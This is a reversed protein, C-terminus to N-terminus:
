HPIAAAILGMIKVVGAGVAGSGGMLLGLKFGKVGGAVQNQTTSVVTALETIKKEAPKGHDEIWTEHREVMPKIGALAALRDQNERHREDQREKTERYRDDALKDQRDLRQLILPLVKDSERRNDAM